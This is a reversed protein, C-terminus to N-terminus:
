LLYFEAMAGLLSLLTRIPVGARLL